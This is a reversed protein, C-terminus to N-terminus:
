FSKLNKRSNISRKTIVLNSIDGIIEPSIGKNFGDFISIKHDITPYNKHNHHLNLYEKIFEGDYFDKGDWNDYLSLKHIRTLRRVSKKYESWESNMELPISLKNQLNYLKRKEKFNDSEFINKAGYKKLNTNKRKEKSTESACPIEVGYKKLSTKKTKKKVETALLACSEGYRELNTEKIKFKIIENKIPIDVGYREINTKKTKHDISCKKCTYIGYNSKYKNYNYYTVDLNSACIDCSISIKINSGISLDKVDVSIFEDDTKYGLSKYYNRNRNTLKIVVKDQLIM